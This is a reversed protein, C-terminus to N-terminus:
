TEPACVRFVPFPSLPSLWCVPLDQFSARERFTKPAALVNFEAFLIDGFHLARQGRQKPAARVLLREGVRISEGSNALVPGHPESWFDFRFQPLKHTRKARNARM